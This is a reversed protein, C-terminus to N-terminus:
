YGRGERGEIWNIFAKNAVRNGGPTPYDGTFYWDGTNDPCASYLGDLTQYLVEVEAQVDEARLLDAIKRSVAEYSFGAYLEKVLNKDALTGDEEAKKCQQYITDLLAEEGQDKLLAVAAQFAIFDGMRSM